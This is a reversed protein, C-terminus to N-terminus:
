DYVMPIWDQRQETPSPQFADLWCCRQFIRQRKILIRWRSSAFPAWINPYRWRLSSADLRVESDTDGPRRHVLRIFNLGASFGASCRTRRVCIVSWASHSGKIIKYNGGLLHSTLVYGSARRNLV